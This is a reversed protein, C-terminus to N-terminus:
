TAKNKALTEFNDREESLRDVDEKLRKNEQQLEGNLKQHQKNIGELEKIRKKLAKNEDVIKVENFMGVNTM